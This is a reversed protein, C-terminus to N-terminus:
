QRASNPVLSTTPRWSSAAVCWVNSGSWRMTRLCSPRPYPWGDLIPGDAQSPVSLTVLDLEQDCTVLLLGPHVVSCCSPRFALPVGPVTAGGYRLPGLLVQVLPLLVVRQFAIGKMKLAVEVAACPHSGPLVYLKPTAPSEGAGDADWTWGHYSCQLKNQYVKGLSLKM